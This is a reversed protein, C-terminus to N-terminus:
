HTFNDLWSKIPHYQILRHVFQFVYQKHLQAPHVSRRLVLNNKNLVQKNLPVFYEPSQPVLKYQRVQAFMGPPNSNSAQEDGIRVEFRATNRGPELVNILSVSPSM